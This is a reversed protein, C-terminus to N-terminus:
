ETVNATRQTSTIRRKLDAIWKTVQEDEGNLEQYREFHQLALDLQQKYLEYLVGLNYHALAYGPDATVAKLYASEAETFKGQRRLLMGLQNLAAPNLPDIILADTLSNEAAKDDGNKAYIIALNVHAGPFDPFQLLFEQFRLQADLLDGSALAGVAQEYLTQARPPVERVAGPQGAVAAAAKDATKAPKPGSACAGLVLGCALLLMAPRLCSACFDTFRRLLM